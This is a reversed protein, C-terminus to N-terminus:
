TSVGTAKAKPRQRTHPHNRIEENIKGVERYEGAEYAESREVDLAVCVGCTDTAVPWGQVLSSPRIKM